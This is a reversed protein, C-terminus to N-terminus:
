EFSAYGLPEPILRIQGTELELFSQNGFMQEEKEATNRMPHKDRREQVEQNLNPVFHNRAFQSSPTAQTVYGNCFPALRPLNTRRLIHRSM